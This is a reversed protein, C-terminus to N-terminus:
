ENDKDRLEQIYKLVDETQKVAYSILDNEELGCAKSIKKCRTDVKTLDKLLLTMQKELQLKTM